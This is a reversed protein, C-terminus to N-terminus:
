KSLSKLRDAVDALALWGDEVDVAGYVDIWAIGNWAGVKFCTPMSECLVLLEAMRPAPAEPFLQVGSSPLSGVDLARPVQRHPLAFARCAPHERLDNALKAIDKRVREASDVAESTHCLALFENDCIVFSTDSSLIGQIAGGLGWPRQGLSLTGAAHTGVLVRALGHGARALELGFKTAVRKWEAEAEDSKRLNLDSSM